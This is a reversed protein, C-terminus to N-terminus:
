VVVGGQKYEQYKKMVVTVHNKTEAPLRNKWDPFNVIKTMNGPGWNYAAIAKETSGFQSIMKSLYKVGGMTNQKPDWPNKVGMDSFTGPMLQMLGIAGARSLANPDFRSEQWMLAKSLFPDISYKRGYENLWEDISSMAVAINAVPFTDPQEQGEPIVIIGDSGPTLDSKKALEQAIFWVATGTLLLGFINM